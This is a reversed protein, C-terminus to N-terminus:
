QFIFGNGLTIVGQRINDLGARVIRQAAVGHPKAYGTVQNVAGILM